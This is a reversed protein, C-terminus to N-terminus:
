KALPSVFGYLLALWIFPHLVAHALCACVVMVNFFLRFVSGAPVFGGDGGWSRPVSEVGLTWEELGGRQLLSPGVMGESSSFISPTPGVTAWFSSSLPKRVMSPM